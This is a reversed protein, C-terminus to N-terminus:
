RRRGARAPRARREARPNGRRFSGPCVGRGRLARWRPRGDRAFAEEIGEEIQEFREPRDDIDDQLRAVFAGAGPMPVKIAMVNIHGDQGAIEALVFVQEEVIAAGADGHHRLGPGHFHLKILVLQEDDIGAVQRRERADQQIRADFAVVFELQDRLAFVQVRGRGAVDLGEALHAASQSDPLCRPDNSFLLLAFPLLPTLSAIERVGRRGKEGEETLRGQAKGAGGSFSSRGSSGRRADISIDGAGLCVVSLEMLLLLIPLELTNIPLRFTNWGHFWVLTGITVSIMNGANARCFFGLLIAIGSGFETWAMSLQMWTPMGTTWWAGGHSMIKLFGHYACFSGLALRLSLPGLKEKLFADFM